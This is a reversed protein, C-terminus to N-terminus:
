GEGGKSLYGQLGSIMEDLSFGLSNMDNVFQEVYEEKTQERLQQLRNMDETVFTGQGRKTEVIHLQELERYARSMTNPNVGMELAYERVSPLKDGPKRKGRIMENSLHQVIQLYIPKDRQFEQGM